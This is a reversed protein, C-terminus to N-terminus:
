SRAAHQSRAAEGRPRTVAQLFAQVVAPDFHQGACRELEYRAKEPSRAAQYPRDALMAGYAEAVAIIRAALPIQEGALKDPYGSGDWREHHHHIAPMIEKLTPSIELIQAGLAPHQEIIERERPSLRGAKQLLADPIAIKGIDHLLGATAVLRCEQESLGLEHAVAVALDSVEYSHVFIGHDRLDLLWMLSYILGLQEARVEQEPSKGDRLVGEHRELEQITAALSADQRLREAEKATRVQNRGLRKAWYMAQDAKELVEGSTQGDLPYTALGISITATIGGEVQSLALPM